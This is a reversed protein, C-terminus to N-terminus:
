KFDYVEKRGEEKKWKEGLFIPVINAKFDVRVGGSKRGFNLLIKVM